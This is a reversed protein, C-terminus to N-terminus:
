CSATCRTAAAESAPSSRAPSGSRSRTPAHGLGGRRARPRPDAARGVSRRSSRRATTATTASSSARRRLWSRGGADTPRSGTARGDLPPGPVRWCCTPPRPRGVRRLRAAIQLTVGGEAARRTALVEAPEVRHGSEVLRSRVSPFGHRSARREHWASRRGAAFRTAGRRRPRRPPRRRAAAAPDARRPRRPHARGGRGDRPGAIRPSRRSAGLSVGRGPEIVLEAEQGRALPVVQLQGVRVEIRRRRDALRPSPGDRADGAPGASGGRTVVSTGLPVDAPGRRPARPGRAARRGAALRAPRPGLGLRRRAPHRRDAARRRAADAGGAGPAARRRDHARCRHAPRGARGPRRRVHRGAPHAGRGARGALEEALRRCRRGPPRAADPRPRGRGGRRGRRRGASRRPGRRRRVHAIGALGGPRTFRPQDVSGDPEALARIAGRAGIDVALVRLAGAAAIASSPARCPSRPSTRRIRAARRHRPAAAPPARAAARRDERHARRTTANGVATVAGPEFLAVVEDRLGRPDPGSWRAATPADRRRSSAPRRAAGAPQRRRRLRGGAAM